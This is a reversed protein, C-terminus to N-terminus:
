LRVSRSSSWNIVCSAGSGKLSAVSVLRSRSVHPHGRWDSRWVASVMRLLRMRCVPQRSVPHGCGVRCSRDPGCRSRGCRRHGTSDPRPWSSWAAILCGITAEGRWPWTKSGVDMKPNPKCNVTSWVQHPLFPQECGPARDPRHLDRSRPTLIVALDPRNADANLAEIFEIPVGDLHQLVYSSAVYRDCLVIKGAALASRIETALCHYRDAAVLCARAHRPM